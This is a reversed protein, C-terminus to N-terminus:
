HLCPFLKSQAMLMHPENEHWKVRGVDTIDDLVSHRHYWPEMRRYSTQNHVDLRSLRSDNEDGYSGNSIINQNGDCLIGRPRTYNVDFSHSRMKSLTKRRDRQTSKGDMMHNQNYIDSLEKLKAKFALLQQESMDKRKAQLVDIFEQIQRSVSGQPHMVKDRQITCQRSFFSDMEKDPSYDRRKGDHTLPVDPILKGPVSLHYKSAASYSDDFGHDPKMKKNQSAEMVTPSDLEVSSRRIGRAVPEKYRQESCSRPKKNSDNVNSLRQCEQPKSNLQNANNDTPKSNLLKEGQDADNSNGSEFSEFSQGPPPFHEFTVEKNTRQGNSTEDKLITKLDPASESHLAHCSNQSDPSSNYLMLLRQYSTSWRPVSCFM